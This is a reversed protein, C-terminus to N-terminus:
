RVVSHHSSWSMVVRVAAEGVAFTPLGGDPDFPPCVCQLVVTGWRDQRLHTTHYSSFVMFMLQYKPDSSARAAVHNTLMPPRSM